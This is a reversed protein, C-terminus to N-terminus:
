PVLALRRYATRYAAYNVLAMCTVIFGGAVPIWQLAVLALITLRVAWRLLFGRGLPIYRRFPAVIILRYIIVGPIVGLIPILGLFFCAVCVVPVRRDISAIYRTAFAPDHM